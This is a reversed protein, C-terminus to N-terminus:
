YGCSWSDFLGSWLEGQAARARDNPVLILARKMELCLSTVIEWTAEDDVGYGPFLVLRRGTGRKDWGPPIPLRAVKRVGFSREVDGDEGLTASMYLRQKADAFPSHTLAPSIVPRIEFVDGSCCFSCADLHQSIKSWPYRWEGDDSLTDLADRIQPLLAHTAIVSIMDALDARSGPENNEIRHIINESLVPKLVQYLAGFAATDERTITVTWMSSVYNDAAHADDCIILEADNIAPNTNFVGSYTTIAVAKAQQYAFFAQPDYDKQKGVLLSPQVGYKRTQAAVQSCLQRTPCLFAVRERFARRRFEAILIAVLTKGSGTPLEVALDRTSCHKDYYEDLLRAQHDWLFKLSSDRKLDRFLIAPSDPKPIPPTAVRFKAMPVM